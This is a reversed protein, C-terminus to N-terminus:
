ADPQTWAPMPRAATLQRHYEVVEPRRRETSPIAQYIATAPALVFLQRHEAPVAALTSSAHRLGAQVDHSRVMALARHLEIQARGIPRSPPTRPWHVITLPTHHKSPQSTPPSSHSRTTYGNGPGASRPTRTPPSRRRCGCSSRKPKTSSGWPTMMAGMSRKCNPAPLWSNFSGQAPMLMRPLPITRSPTWCPRRAARTSGSSLKRAAYGCRWMPTM